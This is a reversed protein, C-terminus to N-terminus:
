LRVTVYDDDPPDEYGQEIANQTKADGIWKAYVKAILQIKASSQTLTECIAMAIRAAVGECFMADMRRVDTVDAVFRLRIPGVEASILYGSELNWDNYTVGSPGGVPTATGKPNQPAMRLYNAPLMFANRSTMQRSPGVGLPYIISLRTLAVGSPFEAGGIQLWKDSGTGGVFVTTWPNLVGATSWHVSGDLVPDHDLNGNALSTYILGDSGGVTNGIAYTTAASWLAPAASPTNATNLDILSMYSVSLYSVVDNKFFTTTADWATATAPNDANGDLQSLYVRYTGDGPATYVLEGSSYTLASDYLSVTLPGFYPEWHTTLLPDNNLNNRIRSTWLNGSQDAVISGVFYTTVASWLAPELLMTNTDVARLIAEKIACTWYNAKLEAERLKDYCFSVEAAGRSDENFGDTGM